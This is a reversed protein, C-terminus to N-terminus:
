PKKKYTIISMDTQQRSYFLTTQMVAPKNSHCRGVSSRMKHGQIERETHSSVSVGPAKTTLGGVGM